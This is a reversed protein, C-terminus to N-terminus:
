QGRQRPGKKPDLAGRASNRGAQRASPDGIEVPGKGSPPAGRRGARAVAPATAPRAAPGGSRYSPDYPRGSRWVGWVIRLLKAALEINAKLFAFRDGQRKAIFGERRARWGANRCAGMAAQYLAWRLLPRGCKSIRATGTWNGTAVGIIDLGALKRLQSFKTYWTIDGIEALLIAAVTPGVGPITRLRAYVPLPAAVRVLEAEITALRAQVARLRAALDTCEFALAPPLSPSSGAAERPAPGGRPRGRGRTPGAAAAPCLPQLPAPLSAVLGAPLPEGAPGLAPLLTNRFRAKCAGLEVRAARLLRVLRRLTAISEDPRSYFLVHGRELLDCLNHADKPDSKGWTGDLTRRNHHAVTNSVLVVDAGHSELFRALAEHYTGTPEVACVIERGGTEACRQALHAWFADFGAGTNPIRVQKDLIRTHAHRVQAVDEAKAIDIGVLLRDRKTRLDAKLARFRKIRIANSRIIPM